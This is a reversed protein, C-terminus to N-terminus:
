SRGTITNYKSVLGSIKGAVPLKLIYKGLRSNRIRDRIRERYAVVIIRFLFWLPVAAAVSVIFGGMVITNNFKTLPFVPLNYLRTFFPAFAKVNLVAYGIVDLVPDALAAATKAIGMTLFATLLNLRTFFGIIFVAAWLLNGGPILALMIGFSFGAAIEGENKNSNLVKILDFIWKLLM